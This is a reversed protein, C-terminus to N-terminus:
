SSVFYNILLKVFVPTNFPLSFNFFISICKKDQLLLALQGRPNRTERQWRANVTPLVRLMIKKLFLKRTFLNKFWLKLLEFVKLM